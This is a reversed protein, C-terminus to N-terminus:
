GLKLLSSTDVKTYGGSPQGAQTLTTQLVSTSCVPPTISVQQGNCQFTIGDAFPMPQPSMSSITAEVGAASFDGTTATMARAFSWVTAFGGQTVGNAFPDTGPAYAKMAAAYLKNDADTPDNSAATLMKMSAYGGPIASASTADVCQPIIVISGSFGSAKIAKLAATCLSVDGIIHYQGPNKANEATIQPTLDAEGV